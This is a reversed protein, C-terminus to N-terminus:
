KKNDIIKETGLRIGCNLESKIKSIDAQLRKRGSKYDERIEGAININKRHIICKSLQQWM